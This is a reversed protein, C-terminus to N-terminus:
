VNFHMTYRGGTSLGSVYTSTTYTYVGDVTGKYTLTVSKNYTQATPAKITVAAYQNIYASGNIYKAPYLTVSGGNSLTHQGSVANGNGDTILANVSSQGATYVDSADVDIQAVVGDTITGGDEDHGMYLSVTSIYNSDFNGSSLAFKKTITEGTETEGNWTPGPASINFSSGSSASPWSVRDAADQYAAAVGDIYYQMAAINFNINGAAAGGGSPVGVTYYPITIQGNDETVTGFGTILNGATASNISRYGYGTGDGFTLAGSSNIQVTEASVKGNNITVLNGSSGFIAMPKVLLSGSSIGFADGITVAGDIRVRNANVTATGTQQDNIAQILAQGDANTLVQAISLINGNADQIHNQIVQTWASRNLHGWIEGGTGSDDWIYRGQADKRPKGENDLDVGIIKFTDSLYENTEEVEHTFHQAYEDLEQEMARFGGYSARDQEFQKRKLEPLPERKENGTAEIAIRTTNSNESGDINSGTWNMNLSYIPLSYNNEGSRVTVVDGPELTWDNLLLEASAPHFSPASALRDYIAQEAESPM